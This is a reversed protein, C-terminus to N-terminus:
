HDIDGFMGIQGANEARQRQVISRHCKRCISYDLGLSHARDWGGYAVKGCHHCVGANKVSSRTEEETEALHAAEHCSRCLWLCIGQEILDEVNREYVGVPYSTHHIVGQYVPTVMKCQMCQQGAYDCACNRMEEHWARKDADTVAM